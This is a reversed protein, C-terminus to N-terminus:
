AAARDRDVEGFPLRIVFLSGRGPHSEAQITGGHAEVVGRTLALGLGLGSSRFELGNATARGRTERIAIGSSFLRGLEAEGIGIGSDQVEIAFFEGDAYARLKVWGGDPTFRIGNTVVNTVAQVVRDGDVRVPSIEPDVRAEVRVHRGTAAALAMGMAREILGQVAHVGLNLTLREGKMEAIQTANEAIRTLQALCGQIAQLAQEQQPALPGLTGDALLDRYGRIVSIPTRLEHSAISIFESKLRAAEELSKVYTRERDRMERFRHALYGLEDQGHVDLPHDYNGRQMEQAGRVLKQIPRLVQESHLLGTLLAILAALVALAIMDVQMRRQFATESDYSRQIVVLELSRSNSNPIRRILTLYTSAHGRVQMTHVDTFDTTPGLKLGEIRQLVAARDLSDTLTTGTITGNAIFTIESRMESRLKMALRDGIRAGLLLAGVIRRDVRVPMAVVQLHDHGQAVVVEGPSGHLAERVLRARLAPHSKVDGVSALMRGDRNVIEFLDTETIRNFDRALGRVTSSFLTDRQSPALTLLSFFRPDQSIVSAGGNLIQSRAALMSEFVQASHELNEHISTSDVHEQVNRHVTALTAVGFLIPAFLTISLIKWRLSVKM